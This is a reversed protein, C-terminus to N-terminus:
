YTRHILTLICSNWWLIVRTAVKELIFRVIRISHACMIDQTFVFANVSSVTISYIFLALIFLQVVCGNVCFFAQSQM